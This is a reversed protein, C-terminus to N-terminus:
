NNKINIYSIPYAIELSHEQFMKEIEFILDQKLQMYDNYAKLITYTKISLNLFYGEIKNIFVNSILDHDIDKHNKLFERITLVMKEIKLFDTHKLPIDIEIRRHTRRSRNKITMTSFTSNPIYIAEKNIERILTSYWGIQEITGRINEKPIEIMENKIFPRNIYIMLGGFFNAIMDKAAFGIAAAGIGGFAILPIINLGILELIILLSIFTILVSAVKSVFEISPADIKKQLKILAKKELYKKYRFVIWTFIVTIVINRVTITHELLKSFNFELFLINLIYSLVIVYIFYKIPKTFINLKRKFLSPDELKSKKKILKISFALILNMIFLLIIGIVIKLIWFHDKIFSVYDM